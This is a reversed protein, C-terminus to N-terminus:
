AAARAARDRSAAPLARTFARRHATPTTGAARRLHLRLSAATGFGARAAVTDVGLDSQELLRLAEALRQEHLWKLPTTGTEARFHRAFSRVSWGAHGAMEAVTLPSALRELAWARTAALGGAPSPLPRDIFQAQSGERYPAVVMRRAIAEAVAAGHDARVLQLCLDIGAAIGASTAVDGHDVFLVRDDVEVAPYRRALEDADAWHTTARRGDLLGAEALAFAGTCVSVIRAGRAHAARLAGAVAPPVGGNFGPVVVTDARRLAGLGRPAVVDFGTSTPVPGAKVSCLVFEYGDPGLDPDPRGFVQAPISLDFAVVEPIALAVVRHM